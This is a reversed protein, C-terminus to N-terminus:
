KRTFTRLEPQTTAADAKGWHMKIRQRANGAIKPVRLWISVTGAAANWHEIQYALQKGNASFRVNDGNPKAATFDSFDRHLRVLVPFEEASASAPISAGGPTTNLVFSGTRKCGPYQAFASGSIALTPLFSPVSLLNMSNIPNCRKFRPLEDCPGTPQSNNSTM